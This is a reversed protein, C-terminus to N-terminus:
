ADLATPGGESVEAAHLEHEFASVLDDFVIWHEVDGWLGGFNALTSSLTQGSVLGTMRLRSAACRGLRSPHDLLRWRRRKPTSRPKEPSQGSFRRLM